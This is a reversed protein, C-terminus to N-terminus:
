KQCTVNLLAMGGGWTIPYRTGNAQMGMGDIINGAQKWVNYNSASAYGKSVCFGDATIKNPYCGPNNAPWIIPGCGGVADFLQTTPPLPAATQNSCKWEIEDCFEVCRNTTNYRLTGGTSANCTATVTGVKVGGGVALSGQLGLSGAKTQTGSGTNLPGAVNGDPASMSPNTWAEAFQIGIGLVVGIVIVKSWYLGQHLFKQM